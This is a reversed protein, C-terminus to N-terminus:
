QTLKKVVGRKLLGILIFDFGLFIAQFGLFLSIGIVGKHLNFAMMLGAVAAIAGLILVFWGFGSRNKLEWGQRVLFIGTVSVWSGFFIILLKMTVVINGLLLFAFVITLISWLLGTTEREEKPTGFYGFLGVTGAMLTLIGLWVSLGLLMKGPYRMIFIGLVILLIGQLLLVWWKKLLLNTM